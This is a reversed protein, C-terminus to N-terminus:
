AQPRTFRATMKYGVGGFAVSGAAYLAPLWMAVGLLDPRTYRFFGAHVLAAESLTGAAAATLALLLAVRTPALWLFLVAAGLALVALKALNTAPLYASAAYLAAFIAFGLWAQAWTLAKGPSRGTLRQAVPYSAGVALGVLGFILPTWASMAFFSVHAYETTGSHTHLADLLSGAVAGFAFLTSAALLPRLSM